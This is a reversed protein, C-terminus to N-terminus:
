IEQRLREVYETFEAESVQDADGYLIKTLYTMDRELAGTEWNFVHIDMGGEDTEFAVVPREGVICYM